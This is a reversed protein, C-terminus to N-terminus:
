YKYQRYQNLIQTRRADDLVVIQLNNDEHIVAFNAKEAGKNHAGISKLGTYYYFVAPEPVMYDVKREKMYLVPPMLILANSDLKNKKVWEAINYSVIYSNGLRVVLREQPEMYTLHDSLGKMPGYVRDNFWKNYAEVNFFLALLVVSLLTLLLARGTNM